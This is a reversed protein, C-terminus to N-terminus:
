IATRVGPSSTLCPRRAQLSLAFNHRRSRQSGIAARRPARLATSPPAPVQHRQEPLQPPPPAPARPNTPGCAVPSMMRVFQVASISGVVDVPSSFRAYCFAGSGSPGMLALVQGPEVCGSVNDLLKKADKGRRKASQVSARSLALVNPYEAARRSNAADCPHQQSRPPHVAGHTPM